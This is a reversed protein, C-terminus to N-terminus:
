QGASPMAAGKAGAKVRVKVAAEDVAIAIGIAVAAVTKPPPAVEPPAAAKGEIIAESLRALVLEISRM